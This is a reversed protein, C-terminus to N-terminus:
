HKLIGDIINNDDKNAYNRIHSVIKFFYLFTLYIVKRTDPKM